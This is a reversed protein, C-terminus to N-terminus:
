QKGSILLALVGLILFGLILKVVWDWLGEFKSVRSSIADTIKITAYESKILKELDDASKQAINVDKRFTKFKEEILEINIKKM